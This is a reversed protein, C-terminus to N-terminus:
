ILRRKLSERQKEFLFRIIQDRERETINDFRVAVMYCPKGVEDKAEVRVVTSGIDYNPGKPIAFSVRVEDGVESPIKTRILCGGGSLDVTEGDWQNEPAMEQYLKVKLKVPVRLYNRRQIRTVTEPYGILMLPLPERQRSKVSAIFSFIQVQNVDRKVQYNVRIVEGPHISILSGNEIPIALYIGEDGMGEVRSRYSNKNNPDEGVEIEVLQNVKLGEPILM